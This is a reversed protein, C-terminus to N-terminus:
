AAKKVPRKRPARTDKWRRHIWWYQEPNQRIIDELRSTYWQTLEKVGAVEDSADRPDMVATTALEFQLPRGLRKSYSVVVPGDNSLALLAIAKYASAPRGFFEVWCGKRGAYQDALFTIVGGSGLVELIQDYGGKKPIIYQGTAGRFRNVFRDLYPNDLKRAVSHTPFGLVGLVYGGIEFNGFHGSILITPRESILMRILGSHEKLRVFDRWNTEHIKRPAHAVELVLLFLHEWMRRSLQQLELESKDPFAHKLNEAVVTSRIKICDGLLWALWCAVMQGTEIRVAQVICILTRVVLYVLFDVPRLGRM